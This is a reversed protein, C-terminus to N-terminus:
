SPTAVPSRAFPTSEPSSVLQIAGNIPPGLWMNSQQMGDFRKCVRALEGRSLAMLRQDVTAQDEEEYGRAFARVIAIFYDIAFDPIPVMDGDGINNWTGRYFFTIAGSEKASPTPWIELIPAMGGNDLLVHNNAVWYYWTTVEIPNTRLNLLHSLTTPYIERILSDTADISTIAGFDSPMRIHDFDIKGGIDSNTDAASGISSKLVLTSATASEIDIKVGVDANDGATVEFQDGEEFTYNTLTLGSVTLNAEDWTGGTETIPLKWSLRQSRGISFQWPYSNYFHRGAGNIIHQLPLEDDVSQAGLSHLAHQECEQYSLVM